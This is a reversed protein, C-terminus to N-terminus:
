KRQNILLSFLDNYCVKYNEEPISHDKRHIPLLGIQIDTIAGKLNYTKLILLSDNIIEMTAEKVQQPTLEENRYQQEITKMRRINVEPFHSFPM